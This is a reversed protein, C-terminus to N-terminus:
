ERVFYATFQLTANSLTGPVNVSPGVGEILPGSTGSAANAACYIHLVGATDVVFVLGSLNSADWVDVEVPVISTASGVPIAEVLEGGGNKVAAWSIVYGGIPYTGTSIAISGRCVQFRQTNDVGKPYDYLTATATSVAM